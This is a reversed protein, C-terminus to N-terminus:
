LRGVRRALEAAFGPSVRLPIVEAAPDCFRLLLFGGYAATFQDQRGGPIGAEVAELHCASDAIARPGPGGARAAARAALRDRNVNNM